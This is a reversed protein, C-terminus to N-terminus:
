SDVLSIKADKKREGFIEQRKREGVKGMEKKQGMIKNINKYVDKMQAGLVAPNFM